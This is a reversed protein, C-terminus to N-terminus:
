KQEEQLIADRIRALLALSDRASEPPCEALDQDNQICYIFYRLENMYADGPTYVAPQANTRTAHDYVTLNPSAGPDFRV